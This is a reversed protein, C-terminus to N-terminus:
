KAGGSDSATAAQGVPKSQSPDVVIDDNTKGAPVMPFVKESSDTRFEIM